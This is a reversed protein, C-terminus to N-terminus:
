HPRVLAVFERWETQWCRFHPKEDQTISPLISVAMECIGIEKFFSKYFGLLVIFRKKLFILEQDEISIM